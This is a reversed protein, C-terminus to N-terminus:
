WTLGGRGGTPTAGEVNRLTQHILHIRAVGLFFSPRGEDEVENGKLKEQRARANEEIRTMNEGKGKHGGGWRQKVEPLSRLLPLAGGRWSGAPKIVPGTLLLDGGPLRSIYVLDRGAKWGWNWDQDWSGHVQAREVGLGFVGLWGRVHLRATNKGVVVRVMLRLGQGVLLALIGWEDKAVTVAQLLQCVPKDTLLGQKLDSENRPGEWSWPVSKRLMLGSNNSKNLTYIQLIDMIDRILLSWSCLSIDWQIQCLHLCM